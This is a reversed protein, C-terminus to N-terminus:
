IHYESLTGELKVLMASILTAKALNYAGFPEKMKSGEIYTNYEKTLRAVEKAKYRAEAKNSM